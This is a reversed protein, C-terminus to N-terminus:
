YSPSMKFNFPAVNGHHGSFPTSKNQSRELVITCDNKISIYEKVKLFLLSICVYNSRSCNGMFFGSTIVASGSLKPNLGNGLLSM